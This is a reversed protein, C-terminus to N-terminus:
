GWFDRLTCAQGISGYLPPCDKPESLHLGVSVICVLNYLLTNALYMQTWVSATVLFRLLFDGADRQSLPYLSLGAKDSAFLSPDPPAAAAASATIGDLCLYALATPVLRRVVWPIRGQGAKPGQERPIPIHIPIPINKAQWSTGIRRLNWLLGTAKAVVGLRSADTLHPNTICLLESASLLQIWFLPVVTAQWLPSLLPREPTLQAALAYTLYVLTAWAAYRSVRNLPTTYLFTLAFVAVFSSELAVLPLFASISM